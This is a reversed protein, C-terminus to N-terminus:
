KSFKRIISRSFIFRNWRKTGLFVKAIEKTRGIPTGLTGSQYRDILDAVYLYAALPNYPYVDITKNGVKIENWKEGAIKSDRIQIATAFLGWGVLSKVMGSTEGNKLKKFFSKTFTGDTSFTM